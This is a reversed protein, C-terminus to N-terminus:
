QDLVELVIRAVDDALADISFRRTFLEHGRESLRRRIEVDARLALLAGALADPDGAPCLWATEGHTLVERVAPTDATVVPRGVSLADFVKNPIVRQSKPSTGFVGLCVDSAAMERPLHDYALRGLFRLNRVRLEAALAKVAAETAGAGVVDIRVDEGAQDLAHAARVVHELGHLPIFSAYVFVRFEGTDRFPTHRMVDDDAGVWVRRLKRRAVGVRTAFYDAHTDTDCVVRTAFACAIRDQFRNSRARPSGPPANGRDEGTEYRSVFADFVVPVRTRAGVARALAVESHGPFGVLVVDAHTRALERLLGPTRHVFTRRDSVTVVTAGARVLAKAMIRNRAYEPDFHGLHAVTVGALPGASRAVPVAIDSGSVL